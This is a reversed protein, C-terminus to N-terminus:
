SSLRSISSCKRLYPARQDHARCGSPVGECHDAGKIDDYGVDRHGAVAAYPEELM